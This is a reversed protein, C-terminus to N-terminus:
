HAKHILDDDEKRGGWGGAGAVMVVVPLCVIRTAGSSTMEVDKNNQSYKVWILPTCVPRTIHLSARDLVQICELIILHGYASQGVLFGKSLAGIQEGILVFSYASLVFRSVEFGAVVPRPLLLVDIILPPSPDGKM